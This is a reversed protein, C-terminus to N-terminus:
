KKLAFVIVALLGVGGLIAPMLWSQSQGPPAAPGIVGYSDSGFNLASSASSSPAGGGGGGGGGSLSGIAGM